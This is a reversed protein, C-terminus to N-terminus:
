FRFKRILRDNKDVFWLEDLPVVKKRLVPIEYLVDKIELKKFGKNEFQNFLLIEKEQTLNEIIKSIKPEIILLLSITLMLNKAIMLQEIKNM